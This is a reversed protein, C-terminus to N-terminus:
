DSHKSRGHRIRTPLCPTSGGPREGVQACTQRSHCRRRADAYTVWEFRDHETGDVAIATGWPVELAFVAWDTDGTLVPRPSALLGTEEHLERVACAARRCALSSHACFGSTHGILAHSAVERGQLGYDAPLSRKPVQRVSPSRCEAPSTM